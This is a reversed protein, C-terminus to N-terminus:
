LRGQRMAVAITPPSSTTFDVPPDIKQKMAIKSANPNKKRLIGVCTAESAQPAERTEDKDM